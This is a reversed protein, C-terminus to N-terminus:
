SPKTATHLAVIGGTLDRWAVSRWGAAAIRAALAAQDPWARISEALYVYADPNSSVATAVRPLARMLYDTYLRRFPGWTPRSFECVALTGGPRTVRAFEALAADVDVTNRLGFSIVVADVSADPIPLHLADAAVFPVADGVRARGTRLMGLSFDTALCRAGTRALEVTSVGTGAAVDLVTDGPGVALAERTARRWRVDQAFSLVTNTLDYRAAVGDFMHAVAAPDRDLEARTGQSASRLPAPGKSRSRASM